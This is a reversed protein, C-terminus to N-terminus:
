IGRRGIREGYLRLARRSTLWKKGGHRVAALKGQKCRLALYKQSYPVNEAARKLTFLEDEATGVDDLIQLLSSAMLKQLLFVMASLGEESDALNLSYLYEDRHEPLVHVPPWNRTIFFLNLLLRGIRGNGDSFPHIREFGYHMHAGLIFTDEGEVDMQGFEKLWEDMRGVVKEMRPPTFSAGRIRVNVRRWHGADRLISFFVNRHMELITHLSLERGTMGPLSRFVREHQVTELVEAMSRDKVSTGDLIIREAEERTVTSGEIANTGWTNLTSIRKWTSEPLSRLSTRELLVSRLENLTYKDMITIISMYLIYILIPLNYIEILEM